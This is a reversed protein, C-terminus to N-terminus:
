KSYNGDNQFLFNIHFVLNSNALNPLHTNKNNHTSVPYELFNDQSQWMSKETEKKQGLFLTHRIWTETQGWSESVMKIENQKWDWVSDERAILSLNDDKYREM